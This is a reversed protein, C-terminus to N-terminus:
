LKAREGSMGGRLNDYKSDPYELCNLTGELEGLGRTVTGILSGADDIPRDGSAEWWMAGGLGQDRIFEGKWGAAEVSDYSVLRRTLGDYFYSARSEGDVEVGGAPLVKYDWVGREWSGEGVGHFPRGLGETDLFDRGYLPMGLVLNRPQVGRELYYKVAKETNFPTSAPNSPSFYLNAQHGTVTDWSGSYDYAMLNWFDLLSTMSPIDLLTYNQPGAPCATTLLFTPTSPLSNSYTTLATRITSLLHVLNTAQLSDSPYEWDIDIGDFGCDKLIQIASNAFTTRGQPTSAPNAFNSSYTWGGISLLTKMQRNKKKLLYLQKVCGYVNTGVDNWSDTPYHKELDAYTDTLYVEGTDPRVNAFSYLVHTLKSAPLDQPQYNRGYIGWNTFYVVSRYSSM